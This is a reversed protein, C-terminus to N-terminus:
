KVDRGKCEGSIAQTCAEELVHRWEEGEALLEALAGHEKSGLVLTSRGVRVDTQTHQVHRVILLGNTAYLSDGM